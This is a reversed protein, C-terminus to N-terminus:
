KWFFDFLLIAVGFGSMSKIFFRKFSASFSCLFVSLHPNNHANLVFSAAAINKGINANFGWFFGQCFGGQTLITATQGFTALRGWTLDGVWIQLLPSQPLPSRAAFFAEAFEM